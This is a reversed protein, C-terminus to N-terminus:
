LGAKLLIFDSIERAAIGVSRAFWLQRLIGAPVIHIVPTTTREIAQAGAGGAINAPDPRFVPRVCLKVALLKLLSAARDLRAFLQARQRPRCFRRREAQAHYLTPRKFPELVDGPMIQPALPASVHLLQGLATPSSDVRLTELEGRLPQAESVRS